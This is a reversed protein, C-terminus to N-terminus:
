GSVWSLHEPFGQTGQGGPHLLGRPCSRGRLPHKQPVLTVGLRPDHTRTQFVGKPSLDLSPFNINFMLRHIKLLFEVFAVSLFGSFVVFRFVSRPM